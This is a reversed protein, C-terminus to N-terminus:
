SENWQFTLTQTGIDGAAAAVTTQLQTAIYQTYGAATLTATPSSGEPGVTSFNVSVGSAIPTTATIDTSGSLATTSPTTYTSTILRKLTVGTGISGATHAFLGASITNFTGTFKVFQYKVFSNQGAAIVASPATYATTTDDINKWNVNSTATRTTGKAPTGTAAGNDEYWAATSAM